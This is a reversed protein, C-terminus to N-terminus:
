KEYGEVKPSLEVLESRDSLIMGLVLALRAVQCAAIIWLALTM